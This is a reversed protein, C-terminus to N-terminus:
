KIDGKVEYGEKELREIIINLEIGKMLASKPITMRKGVTNLMVANTIHDFGLERLISKIEPYNSCMVYVSENLDVYKM